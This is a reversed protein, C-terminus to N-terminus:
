TVKELCDFITDHTTVWSVPPVGNPHLALLQHARMLDSSDVAVSHDQCRECFTISDNHLRVPQGVLAAHQSTPGCNVCECREIIANSLTVTANANATLWPLLLDKHAIPKKNANTQGSCSPCSSVPALAIRSSNMSITDIFSRQSQDAKYGGFLKSKGLKKQHGLRLLESTGIAAVISATVTTTPVKKELFAARQLGGCSYRQAMRTYVSDPLHCTYCACSSNSSLTFVEVVAQRADIALNIWNSQTHVAIENLHLRAEFNDLAGLMVNYRSAQTLSLTDQIAGSIARMKTAPHLESARKVVAVAKAQGVDSERLFVSRTLNSLEVTDFDYVDISGVGILLLNKILENGIAGAGIVAVSLSQVLTQDFGEILQHRAFRESRASSASM